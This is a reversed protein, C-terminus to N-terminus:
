IPDSWLAVCNRGSQSIIGLERHEVILTDADLTTIDFEMSWPPDIPRIDEGEYQIGNLGITLTQGDISWTGFELHPQYRVEAEPKSRNFQMYTGDPANKRHWLTEEGEGCWEGIYHAATPDTHGMVPLLLACLVPALIFGSRPLIARRKGDTM